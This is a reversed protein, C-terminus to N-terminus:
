RYQVPVHRFNYFNLLPWICWNICLTPWLKKQVAILGAEYMLHASFVGRLLFDHTQMLVCM